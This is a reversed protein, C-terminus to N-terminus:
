CELKTYFLSANSTPDPVGIPEIIDPLRSLADAVVCTRRPKYVVIFDYELFL